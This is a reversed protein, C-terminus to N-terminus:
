FQLSRLTQSTECRGFATKGTETKCKVNDGSKGGLWECDSRDGIEIDRDEPCCEIGFSYKGLTNERKM